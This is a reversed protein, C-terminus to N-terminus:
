MPKLNKMLRDMMWAIRKMRGTDTKADLYARTYTKKVSLSMAQFNHHALENDKLLESILIIQEDTVDSPKSANVWQGNEKAERIKVRGFDSMLGRSELDEVLTKNKLSWKSDKRRLSFYKIYTNDDMRKMLGDIWGFCLAEELAEDAKLTNSDKIKDFKLWVGNSSMGNNVLWMRFESRSKFYLPEMM